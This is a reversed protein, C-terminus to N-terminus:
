RGKMMEAAKLVAEDANRAYGDAGVKEWLQEDRLFPRGGVLVKVDKDFDFTYNRVSNILEGIKGLNFTMTTSVALIDAHKQNIIGLIDRVPMNAGLYYTDWGEMELFDSVMRIGMEHLEKEVSTSIITFGRKESQFILPYLQAMIAQTSTTFYHEVAVSIKNTQWLRGIEHQVAEFVYRYIDKVKAGSDVAAKIYDTAQNRRGELLAEKYKLALEYLPNENTIFSEIETGFQKLDDLARDIYRSSIEVAEPSCQEQLAEKMCILSGELAGEPLGIKEFLIHCWEIYEKFLSYSSLSIAQVLFSFHFRADEMSHKRGREGYKEWVPQMEYQKRVKAEALTRVNNEIEKAATKDLNEM